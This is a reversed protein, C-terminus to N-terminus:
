DQKLKGLPPVFPARPPQHLAPQHGFANELVDADHLSSHHDIGKGLATVDRNIVKGPAFPAVTHPDLVRQASGHIPSTSDVQNAATAGLTQVRDSQSYLTTIPGDVRSAAARNWSPDQAPDWHPTGLMTVSAVGFGTGGLQQLAHGIVNGGHSQGVLHVNEGGDFKKLLGQALHQGAALRAAENAQGNWEVASFTTAHHERKLVQAMEGQGHAYNGEDRAGSAFTGHVYVVHSTRPTPEAVDPMPRTNTRRRLDSM